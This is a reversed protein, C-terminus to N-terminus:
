LPAVIRVRFPLITFPPCSYCFLPLMQMLCGGMELAAASRKAKRCHSLREPTAAMGCLCCLAGALAAHM